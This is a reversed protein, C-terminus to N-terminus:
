MYCADRRAPFRFGRSGRQSAAACSSSCIRNARRVPARWSCRTGRGCCAKLLRLRLRRCTMLSHQFTKKTRCITTSVRLGTAGINTDVLFQKHEGRVVGPMRSLRSPNRNQKDIDLGNKACVKYLYDVRARYEEYSGADVRVIAHLSKGGSYVLCAVPLELERIVANQSAIDMSDSEVLAYRYETINENKVGKGDLPNFRIWAGVAPNYDGLVAGLDDGCKYLASCLEGATQTYSGSKPMYKGDKEWSETVYGVTDTSDFLTELYRILEAAPKWKEPEHIDQAEIWNKDVVVFKDHRDITDNWDLEHDAKAPKYGNDLAMKVLTGATIGTGTFTDWKRECEGPHYRKLDRRSWADWDSAKYGADKLAMGIGTWDTYDLLAPDIYDLLELLNENNYEM